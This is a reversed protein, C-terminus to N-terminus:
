AFPHAFSDLFSRAGLVVSLMLALALIAYLWLAMAAIM